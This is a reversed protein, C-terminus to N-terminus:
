GKTNPIWYLREQEKARDLLKKFLALKQKYMCYVLCGYINLSPHKPEAELLVTLLELSEQDVADGLVAAFKWVDINRSTHESMMGVKCIKLNKVQLLRRVMQVRIDLGRSKSARAAMDLVNGRGEGGRKANIDVVPSQLFIELLDLSGLIIAWHLPVLQMEELLMCRVRNVDPDKVYEKLLKKARKVSEENMPYCFNCAVIAMVGFIESSMDVEKGEM